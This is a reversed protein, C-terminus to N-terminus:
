ARGSGDDGFSRPRVRFSLEYEFLRIDMNTVQCATILEDSFANAVIMGRVPRGDALDQRVSGIYNLIQGVTRDYGRSVKLEIVVLSGDQAVALIDIRRGRIPYEIGRIGEDEYLRLGPELTHLNAALYDRLHSEYAFTAGAGDELTVSEDPINVEDPETHTPRTVGPYIPSPDHAADYRRYEGRGIQYLLDDVGPRVTHHVRAPANTSTRVLHAQVTGRKIKPWHVQFWHQIEDSTFRDQGAQETLFRRLLEVTSQEYISM